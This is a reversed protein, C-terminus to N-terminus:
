TRDPSVMSEMSEISELFRKAQRCALSRHSNQAKWEPLQALTKEGDGKLPIFVPDYGFGHAGSYERSIHGDLKGEFFFIEEPALYFCLICVFFAKRNDKNEMENLLKQARQRDTFGEGGFRASHIGLKEPLAEVVIGSDDSIAPHKFHKYYAHAKKFANEEFSKGDEIVELSSPPSSINAIPALSSSLESAKHPNGSALLLDRAM